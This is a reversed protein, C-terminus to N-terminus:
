NALYLTEVGFGTNLFFRLTAALPLNDKPTSSSTSVSEVADFAGVGRSFVGASVDATLESVSPLVKLFFFSPAFVLTPMFGRTM